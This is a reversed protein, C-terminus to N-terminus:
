SVLWTTLPRLNARVQKLFYRYHSLFCWEFTFLWEWKGSNIRITDGLTGYELVNRLALCSAYKTMRHWTSQIRLHFLLKVRRLLVFVFLSIVPLLSIDYGQITSTMKLSCLFWWLLCLLFLFVSLNGLKLLKMKNLLIYYPQRATIVGNLFLNSFAPFLFLKM